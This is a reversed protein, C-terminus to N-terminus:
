EYEKRVNKVKESDTMNSIKIALITIKDVLNGNSIEIKM